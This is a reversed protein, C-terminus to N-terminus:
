KILLIMEEYLRQPEIPKAIHGNMGCSLCKQVDDAFADATMAVIPITKADTRKLTRIREVAEYGDMVPMRIDMLIIDYFGEASRSFLEIGEQGNEATEVIMKKESLLAKAIEQNLPHDECMLVHKGELVSMDASKEKSQQYKKKAESVTTSNTQLQITFTTGEGIRSKVKITGDMLEIMKKAIALGLGSGRRDSVDDRGEQTFPEFLVKQFKESMGIGNDTVEIKAALKGKADMPKFEAKYTIEGGEPTYKVANSLLNFVIQNMRLKDMIPVKGKPVDILAKFKQGKERCLPKIVADLYEKFEEPPYPQPHLEIKNREAKSMDLIDNILGLLFKSSTDIKKLYEAMDPTNELKGALYTMGIIGNLPTRIDHSMRSLFDTKAENASQAAKLAEQMLRLQEQEQDYVATIDTQTNILMKKSQDLWNFQVQKRLIDGTKSTCRFVFTYEGKEAMESVVRSLATCNLFLERDQLVVYEEALKKRVTDYDVAKSPELTGFEWERKRLEFTNAALNILAIHDYKEETICSVINEETKRDTVNLAYTVAEVDGTAPNQVMNVFGDIWIISGNSAIVPYETSVETKGHRYADLLKERTFTNKYEGRLKDDAIISGNAELYGDVTGSNQQTLVSDYPSQGDGCTNKTLNLRFTGLSYPNVKAIQRYMSNYKEEELKQATIDMGIGYASLPNGCEDFVTTYTIRECRPQVGTIRKYWFECSAKPEGSDVKKYLEIVKPYDKEDVWETVSWPVNEIVKPISFKECDITTASSDSLIIRHNKIDYVWISLNAIEAASEYMKRSQIMAAEAEREATIDSVCSFYLLEDGYSVSRASLQYWHPQTDKDRYYRFVCKVSTSPVALSHMSKEVEKRDQDPIRDPVIFDVKSASEVPVGYLECILPNMTQSITKGNKIRLVGVGVPINNVIIELEHAHQELKLENKAKVFANGVSYAFSLLLEASHVMKEISPNDAGIFGILKGGSIIPAEVYSRIGQKSMIEFEDPKSEKITEIDRVVVCKSKEFDPLWRKMYSVDINQLNDIEAVIGERCWEYLNSAKGNEVNFIYARDAEYYRGIIKLVENLGDDINEQENLMQIAKLQCDEADLMNQYEAQKLKMDTIDDIYQVFAKHGCWNIYEGSLREWKKRENSFRDKSLVEGPKIRNLFCDDCPHDIGHIYSYCTKGAYSENEKKRYERAASNAYLIQRTHCDSVYVMRNTHDLITQYIDTEVSANTYISLVVPKGDKQGCLRANVHAWDIGLQKHYVRYYCNIPKGTKICEKVEDMLAPIDDKLVFFTADEASAEMYEEMTMGNLAPIEDSIYLTEIKRGNVRYIAVNGPTVRELLELTEETIEM